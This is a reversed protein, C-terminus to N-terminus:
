KDASDNENSEEDSNNERNVGKDRNKKAPNKLNQKKMAEGIQNSATFSAVMNNLMDSGAQPSNPLLILNSNTEEGISQLTDYHQTVVILASAEQSNIGVNNLVDVSEELGRAIERRQDAIGQGQLRKSEAEAKAKEVILIRAADGEYQAAVKERESANIRNMSTKVEVAPDIDTVLARIIDYGYNGMADNLEGKVANAIEDKKEFVDDLKMKPVVARVVDFVYSTIQDQPSDLKYFAEWVKDTIVKYQVSIKLKTFVDDKTKTEVAVDLQLVRLSIRGAIRDIIPIKIRLGPQRVGIFRGFREIVAATQQKVMFLSSLLALIGFFILIYTSLNM